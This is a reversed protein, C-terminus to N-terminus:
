KSIHDSKGFNKGIIDIRVINALKPRQIIQINVTKEIVPVFISFVTRFFIKGSNIM